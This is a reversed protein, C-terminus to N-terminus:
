TYSYNRFIKARDYYLYRYFSNDAKSADETLEVSDNCNLNIIRKLFDKENHVGCSGHGGIYVKM